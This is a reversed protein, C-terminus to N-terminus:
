GVRHGSNMFLHRIFTRQLIQFVPVLGRQHPSEQVLIRLSLELKPEQRVKSVFGRRLLHRVLVLFVRVLIGLGM